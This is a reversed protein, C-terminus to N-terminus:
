SKKGSLARGVSGWRTEIGAKKKVEKKRVSRVFPNVVVRKLFRKFSKLFGKSARPVNYEFDRFKKKREAGDLPPDYCHHHPLELPQRSLPAVSGERDPQTEDTFCVRRHTTINNRSPKLPCLLIGASLPHQPITSRIVYNLYDSNSLREKEDKSASSSEHGDLAGHAQEVTRPKSVRLHLAAQNNFNTLSKSRQSLFSYPTDPADPAYEATNFIPLSVSSQNDLKMLSDSSSRLPFDMSGSAFASSQSLTGYPSDPANEATKSASAPFRFPSVDELKMMCHSNIRVYIPSLKRTRSDSASRQFVSGDTSSHVEEATKSHSKYKIWTTAGVKIFTPPLDMARSDLAGSSQPRSGYTSDDSTPPRSKELVPALPQVSANNIEQLLEEEYFSNEFEPFPLTPSPPMPTSSPFENEFENLPENNSASLPPSSM